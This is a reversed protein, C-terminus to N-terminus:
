GTKHKELDLPRIEKLDELSEVGLERLKELLNNGETPINILRMFQKVEEMDRLATRHCFM